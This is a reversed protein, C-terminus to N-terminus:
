RLAHYISDFLLPALHEVKGGLSSNRTATGDKAGLFALLAKRQPGALKQFLVREALTDVYAGM